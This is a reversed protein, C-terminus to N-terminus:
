VVSKGPSAQVIERCLATRYADLAQYLPHQPVEGESRCQYLFCDLAKVSEIRTAGAYAFRYPDEQLDGRDAEEGYRADVALINLNSMCAGLFELKQETSADPLNCAAAALIRFWHHDRGLEIRTLIKNITEDEVIYASM